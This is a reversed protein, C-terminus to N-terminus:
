SNILATLKVALGVDVENEPDIPHQSLRLYIGSEVIEYRVEEEIKAVMHEQQRRDQKWYNIWNVSKDLENVGTLANVKMGILTSRVAAYIPNAVDILRNILSVVLISNEETYMSFGKPIRIVLSNVLRNSKVGFTIQIGCSSDSSMSSFLGLTCGSDPIAGAYRRLKGQVHAIFSDLSGDYPKADKKKKATFYRPKFPQGFSSVCLLLDYAHSIISMDDKTSNPKWWVIISFSDEM